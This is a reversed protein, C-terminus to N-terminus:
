FAKCIHVTHVAYCECVWMNVSMDSAYVDISHDFHVVGRNVTHMESM